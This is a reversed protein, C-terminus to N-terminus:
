KTLCPNIAAARQYADASARNDGLNSSSISIYYWSMADDPVIAVARRFAERATAWDGSQVFAMGEQFAIENQMLPDGIKPESPKEKKLVKPKKFTMLLPAPKALRQMATLENGANQFLTAGNKGNQRQYFGEFSYLKVLGQYGLPSRYDIRKTDEFWLKAAAFNGSSYSHLARMGKSYSEYARTSCTADRVASFKAGDPSAGIKKLIEEVISAQKTFFEKNDPYPFTAEFQQVFIGANGETVRIFIRLKGDLNQFLGSITLFNPTSLPSSATPGSYPRVSGSASILDSLYLPIGHTMWEDGDKKTFNQFELIQVARGQPMQSIELDSMLRQWNICSRGQANAGNSILLAISLILLVRTIGRFM